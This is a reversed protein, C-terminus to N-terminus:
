VHKIIGSQRNSIDLSKKKHGVESYFTGNKFNEIAKARDFSLNKPLDDLDYWGMQIVKDPEGIQPTGRFKDVFFHANVYREGTPNLKRDATGVDIITVFIIDSDDYSLEVEEGGERHGAEVFAEGKEVHGGVTEYYIKGDPKKELLLLVQWKGNFKRLFYVHSASRSLYREKKSMWMDYCLGRLIALSM